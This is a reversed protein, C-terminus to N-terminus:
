SATQLTTPLVVTVTTGQQYHSSLTITGQHTDVISRALCLGLGTGSPVTRRTDAGRFFREFVSELDDKAIGIGQDAVTLRAFGSHESLAITVTSGKKQSYLCANDILILLLQRLRLADGRVTIPTEPIELILSMQRTQALANADGCISTVLANLTLNRMDFRISATETRALFLLDEVLKALQASLDTIRQLATQYEGSSKASGRLTVEAEGRIATLPTRLEHSIDAFFRRRAEDLRHLKDNAQQLEHTRADVRRELDAQADLLQNRQQSLQETMQNFNKALYTFENRGPLTIHHALDGKAVERVGTVLLQLPTSLNRWLLWGMVLAFLTALGAMIIAAQRSEKMLREAHETAQEAEYLEETIAADIMSKFQKDITEELVVTLMERASKEAGTDRLIRVQGLMWTAQELLLEIEDLQLLENRENDDDDAISVTSEIHEIEALVTNRVQEITAFLQRQTSQTHDNTATIEQNLVLVDMLEKFHRYAEHSLDVYAQAAAHALQSRQFHHEARQMGWYLTTALALVIILLVAIAISLKARFM